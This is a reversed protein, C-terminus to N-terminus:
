NNANYWRVFGVAAKWAAEIFIEASHLPQANIRVMYHGENNRMGFTRPYAHDEFPPRDEESPTIPGYFEPYKYRSIEEIVPMLDAWDSHYAQQKYFQDLAYDNGSAIYHERTIVANGGAFPSAAILKNGEIIEQDTM